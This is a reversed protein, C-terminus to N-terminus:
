SRALGPRFFVDENKDPTAAQSYGAARLQRELPVLMDAAPRFDRRILVADIGLAALHRVADDARVAAGLDAYRGPGFWDGIKTIGDLKFYYALPSEYDGFVYVRPRTLHAARLRDVIIQFEPYGSVGHMLYAGQSPVTQAIGVIETNFFQQMWSASVPTPAAAAALLVLGVAARVRSAGALALALLGAVVASLPLYVLSYRGLPVSALWYVVGAFTLLALPLWVRREAPIRRLLWYVLVIGPLFMLASLLNSGFERFNSAQPQELVSLPLALLAGPSRDVALDPLLAALDAQTWTSDPQHLALHLYPAIPDGAQVVNKAYWPLCLVLAVASLTMIVRPRLSAARAAIFVGFVAFPILVIFSAKMGVFYPFCVLTYALWLRQRTAVAMVTSTASLLFFLGLAVDVMGDDIWRLFIPSLTVAAAALVAALEEVAGAAVGVHPALARVAGYVGLITMVCPLWGAVFDIYSALHLEYVWSDILIWNQAYYPFRVWPDVVLAHASAWDVAYVLHFTLADFTSEPIVAPIGLVVAVLYLALSAPSFAARFVALRSRWFAARLPSDGLTWFATGLGIIGAAATAPYLLHLLGVIFTVFGTIAVGAATATVIHLTAARDSVPPGFLRPTWLLTGCIFFYAGFAHAILMGAVYHELALM